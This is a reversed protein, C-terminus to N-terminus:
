DPLQDGKPEPLLFSGVFLIALACAATTGASHAVRASASGGPTVNSLTTTLLAASIGIARGGIGYGFSEGTGRLHTPYIRPLYNGWFSMVGNFLAQACFILPILVTLSRTAAYFFVGCFVLTAPGVFIRLLKRQRVVYVVVLAFALRGALSGLEQIVYVRSVTQEVQRTALNQVSALGPIIRPMHQLAGFPLAYSCAMMLTVLLTTKRLAPRFLEKLSPRKLTGKARKARWLPSEPLFPRVLILPIAPILGSLLTYRWAEHAGRIAPFHEAYTVSVYYAGTVMMGGLGFAAQTYGLVSQRQKPNEFLEALWAIAAVQEVCSGIWTTCRLLLLLPLSTAFSAACASFAYLLISWVLVRRRGLLDTLYGGLLGFIGGALGPLFFFWGVWQNFEPTGAKVHGLTLLVPRVILATMLTEYLDFAFGLCAIGCILWQIPTLPRPVAMWAGGHTTAAVMEPKCTLGSLSNQM